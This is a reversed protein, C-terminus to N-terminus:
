YDLKIRIVPGITFDKRLPKTLKAVALLDNNNNYLGVSTIYSVPESILVPDIITGDAQIFTPNTSYNFEQPDTYVHVFNSTITEESRLSFGHISQLFAKSPTNREAANEDVVFGFGGNDVSVDLAKRNILITAIDPLFWGYNGDYTVQNSNDTPGRKLRYRRGSDINEVPTNEDSNDILTLEANDSNKLTLKLSGLLLKQKYAARQISIIFFKEEIETVTQRREGDFDFYSEESGLVLARYQSYNGLADNKYNEPTSLFASLNEPKEAYALGFQIRTNDENPDGNWVDLWRGGSQAEQSESIQLGNQVLTNSGSLTTFTPTTVSKADIVVHNPQFQKFSM